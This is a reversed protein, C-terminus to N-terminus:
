GAAVLRDTRHRLAVLDAGGGVVGDDNLLVVVAYARKQQVHRHARARWTGKARCAYGVVATAGSCHAPPRCLPGNVM